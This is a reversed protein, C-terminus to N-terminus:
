LDIPFSWLRLSSDNRLQSMAMARVTAPNRAVFAVEAGRARLAQLLALGLGSTGGTIAVRLGHLADDHMM